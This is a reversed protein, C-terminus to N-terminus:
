YKCLCFELRCSVNLYLPSFCHYLYLNGGYPFVSFGILMNHYQLIFRTLAVTGTLETM